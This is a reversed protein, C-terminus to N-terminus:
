VGDRIQHLPESLREFYLFLSPAFGTRLEHLLTTALKGRQCPYSTGRLWRGGHQHIYSRSGRGRAVARFDTM